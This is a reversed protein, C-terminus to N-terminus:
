YKLIKRGCFQRAHKIEYYKLAKRLVQINDFIMRIRLEVKKRTIDEIKMIKLNDLGYDENEYDSKVFKVDNM